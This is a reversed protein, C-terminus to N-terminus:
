GQYPALFFVKHKPQCNSKWLWRYVPHLVSHGFLIRYVKASAFLDSGWSYIWKDKTDDLDTDNLIQQVTQFQLFAAQSLPLQFLSTFEDLDFAKKVTIQQNLDFSLLEPYSSAFPM